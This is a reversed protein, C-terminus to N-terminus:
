IYSYISFPHFVFTVGYKITRYQTDSTIMSVQKNDTTLCAVLLKLTFRLITVDQCIGAFLGLTRM